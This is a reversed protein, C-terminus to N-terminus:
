VELVKQLARDQDTASPPPDPATEGSSHRLSAEVAHQLAREEDALQMEVIRLQQLQQLQQLRQEARSADPRLEMDDREPSGVGVGSNPGAATRGSSDDAM